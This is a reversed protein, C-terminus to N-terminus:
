LTLRYLPSAPMCGTTKNSPTCRAGVTINDVSVDSAYPQGLTALFLLSYTGRPLCVTVTQVSNVSDSDAFLLMVPVKLVSFQYLSLAGGIKGGSQLNYAFTLPKPSAFTHVPSILQVQDGQLGLRSPVTANDTLLYPILNITTDLLRDPINHM